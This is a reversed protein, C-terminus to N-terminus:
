NLSPIVYDENENDEESQVNDEATTQIPTQTEEITSYLTDGNESSCIISYHHTGEELIQISYAGNTEMEIHQSPTDDDQLSTIVSYHSVNEDQDASAISNTAIEMPQMELHLPRKHVHSADAIRRDNQAEQITTYFSDGDESSTATRNYVEKARRKRRVLLTSVVVATVLTINLLLVISAGIIGGKAAESLHDGYEAATNPDTHPTGIIPSLISAQISFTDVFCM